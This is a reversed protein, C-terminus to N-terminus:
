AVRPQISGPVIQGGFDRLLGQVFPDAEINAEAERQREARAQADAAAATESVAGIECLVRVEVGFHDSLVQQLREAVGNEGIAAVPIRLHFTRGVVQTLESQYALQQALGKLSLSAALAPWAGTFVPPTGDEAAAPPRPAVAAAVPRARPAEPAPADPADPANPKSARVPAAAKPPLSAPESDYPGFVPLDPPLDEWPPIDSGGSAEWPPVSEPEPAPRRAPAPAAAPPAPRAAPAPAPRSVATPAPARLPQAPQRAAGGTPTSVPAAVPARGAGGRAASAQRAAALAARAPSMP